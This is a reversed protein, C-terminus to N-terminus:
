FNKQFLNLHLKLYMMSKKMFVNGMLNLVGVKLNKKSNYVSFGKGPLDGSMNLPRLLKNETKIFEYVEKKIGYM